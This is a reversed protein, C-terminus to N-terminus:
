AVDLRDPLDRQLHEEVCSRDEVRELQDHLLAALRRRLDQEAIGERRDELLHPVRHDIGRMGRGCVEKMTRQYQNREENERRDQDRAGDDEDARCWPDGLLQSGGTFTQVIM